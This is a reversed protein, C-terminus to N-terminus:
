GSVKTLRTRNEAGDTGTYVFWVDDGEWEMQISQFPRGRMNNPNLTVAPWLVLVGQPDIDFNGGFSTYPGFIAGLEEDTAEAAALPRPSFATVFNGVFKDGMFIYYGPQIDELHRGAEPGRDVLKEVRRWAGQMRQQAPSLQVDEDTVPTLRTMVRGAEPTTSTLWADGDVWSLQHDLVTGGVMLAPDKAVLPSLSLYEDENIYNGAHGTFPAYARGIDATTPDAGLFSRAAFGDVAAIGYHDGAFIYVSPQVDLSHSGAHPGAELRVQSARWVGEIVPPPLEAVDDPAAGPSCATLVPAILVLVSIAFKPM